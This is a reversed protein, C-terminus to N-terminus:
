WPYGPYKGPVKKRINDDNPVKVLNTEQKATTIVIKTHNQYRPVKVLNVQMTVNPNHLVRVFNSVVPVQFKQELLM